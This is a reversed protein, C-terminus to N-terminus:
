LTRAGATLSAAGLPVAWCRVELQAMSNDRVDPAWM